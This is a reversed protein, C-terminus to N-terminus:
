RRDIITHTHTRVDFYPLWLLYHCLNSAYEASIDSKTKKKKREDGMGYLVRM